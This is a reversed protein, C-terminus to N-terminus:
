GNQGKQNKAARGHGQQATQLALYEPSLSYGEHWDGHSPILANNESYPGVLVGRYVLENVLCNFWSNTLPKSNLLYEEIAVIIEQHSMGEIWTSKCVAIRHPPVKENLKIPANNLIRPQNPDNM